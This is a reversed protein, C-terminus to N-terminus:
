FCRKVHGQSRQLWQQCDEVLAPVSESFGIEFVIRPFVEKWCAFAIDPQKVIGAAKHVPLRARDTPLRVDTGIIVKVMRSEPKTLFRSTCMDAMAHIMFNAIADHVASPMARITLKEAATNYDHR